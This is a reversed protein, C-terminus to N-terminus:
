QQAEIERYSWADPAIEDSWEGVVRDNKEGDIEVLQVKVWYTDRDSAPLKNLMETVYTILRMDELYYSLSM